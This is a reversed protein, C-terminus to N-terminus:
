HELMDIVRATNQPMVLFYFRALCRGDDATVIEFGKLLFLWRLPKVRLEDFSHTEKVIPEAFTMLRRQTSVHLKTGTFVPQLWWAVLGTVPQGDFICLFLFCLGAELALTTYLALLTAIMAGMIPMLWAFIGKLLFGESFQFIEVDAEHPWLHPRRGGDRNM